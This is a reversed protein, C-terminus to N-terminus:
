SDRPSPSTYLLCPKPFFAIRLRTPRGNLTRTRTPPGEEGLGWTWVMGEMDVAVTHSAGCAVSKIPHGVLAEVVRPLRVTLTDGHGLQGYASCGWSFVKGMETVAVTHSYGCAVAVIRQGRLDKVIGFDMQAELNEFGLQGEQNSGWTVLAGAETIVASHDGGCAIERPIHGIEKLRKVERPM